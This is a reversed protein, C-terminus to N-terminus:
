PSDVLASAHWVINAAATVTVRLYLQEGTQLTYNPAAAFSGTTVGTGASFAQTALVTKTSASTRKCLTMTITGSGGRDYVLSINTLREGVRCPVNAEITSASTFSWGGDGLGGAGGSELAFDAGAIPYEYLPHKGATLNVINDQLDNLDASFIQSGPTYTRNRSTPLGM